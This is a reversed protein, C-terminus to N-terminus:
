AQSFRQANGMHPWVYSQVNAYAQRLHNVDHHVWEHLLDAVTLRAVQPHLGGRQLQEPKLSRVLALSDRRLPEFEDLMQQPTRECDRRQGAVGAQDWGELKPEEAGLIVRIRGAFGRKEAEIIHGVCENVCWEEPAPRWSAVEPTVGRLLSAFAGGSTELIAAVEAPTV